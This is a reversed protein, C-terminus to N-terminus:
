ERIVYVKKLKKYNPKDIAMLSENKIEDTYYVFHNHNVLCHTPCQYKKDVQVIETQNYKDIIAVQKPKSKDRVIGVL